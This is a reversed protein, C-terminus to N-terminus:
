VPKLFLSVQASKLAERLMANQVRLEGILALYEAERRELRDVRSNLRALDQKQSEITAKANSAGFGILWRITFLTGGIVAVWWPQPQLSDPM